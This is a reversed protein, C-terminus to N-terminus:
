SDRPSPSTYLLCLKYLHQSNAFQELYPRNQRTERLTVRLPFWYRPNKSTKQAFKEFATQRRDQLTELGSLKLLQPYDLEYGFIARLCRKQVRELLNVQYQNIQSHYVVSSYELVSRISATYVIKLRGNNVGNRKFNLLM